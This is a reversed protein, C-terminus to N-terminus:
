AAATPDVGDHLVVKVTVPERAGPASEAIKVRYAAIAKYADVLGRFYQPNPDQQTFSKIGNKAGMAALKELDMPGAMVREWVREAASLVMMEADQVAREMLEDRAKLFDPDLRARKAWDCATRKNEIGVQRGSWAANGSALYHMRFDAEKASAEQKPL